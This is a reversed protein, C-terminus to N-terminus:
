RGPRYLVMSIRSGLRRVTDAAGNRVTDDMVGETPDDFGEELATEDVVTVGITLAFPGVPRNHTVFPEAVAIPPHQTAVDVAVKWGDIMLNELRIQATSDGTLARQPQRVADDITGIRLLRHIKVIGAVIQEGREFTPAAQWNAVQGALEEGIQIQVAQVVEALFYQPRLPVQAVHIVKRQKVVAPLLKLRPSLADGLIEFAPPQAKVRTLRDDQISHLRGWKKAQDQKRATVPSQRFVVHTTETIAQPSQTVAPVRTRDRPLFNSLAHATPDRVGFM